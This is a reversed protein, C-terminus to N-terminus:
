GSPRGASRMAPCRVLRIAGRRAAAEIMAVSVQSPSTFASVKGDVDIIVVFPLGKVFYNRYTTGDADTAITAKFPHDALFSRLVATEECPACWTAFFDLVVVKGRLGTPTLDDAQGTPTAASAIV